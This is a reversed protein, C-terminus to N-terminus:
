WPAPHAALLAAMFVDLSVMAQTGSIVSAQEAIAFSWLGDRWVKMAAADAAFSVNTSGEYSVCSLGSDYHRAQATTDILNQLATSFAAFQEALTPVVVPKLVAATGNWIYAEPTVSDAVDVWIFPSAVPFSVAEVQVLKGNPDILAKKM